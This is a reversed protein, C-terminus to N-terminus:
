RIKGTATGLLDSGYDYVVIKVERAGGPLPITVAVPIGERVLRERNADNVNLDLVRWTEGIVSKGADGFFVALNLKAAHRDGTPTFTVRSLDVHM